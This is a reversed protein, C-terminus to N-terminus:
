QHRCSPRTTEQLRHRGGRPTHLGWSPAGPSKGPLICAGADLHPDCAGLPWASPPCSCRAPGAEGGAASPAGSAEAWGAALLASSPGFRVRLRAPFRGARPVRTGEDAAPKRRECVDGGPVPLFSTLSESLLVPSVAQAGQQPPPRGPAGRASAGRTQVPWPSVPSAPGRLSAESM